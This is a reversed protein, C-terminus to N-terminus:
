TGEWFTPDDLRWITTSMQETAEVERNVSVDYTAVATLGRAPFAARRPDGFWATGGRRTIAAALRGVGRAMAPEYLADGALLVDFFVDSEALLDQQSIDVKLGNRTANVRTAATAYPDVDSCLVHAAGARAAALGVVGSGCGLDLVRHGKVLDPHDLIHRALALGGPWAFAWWPPELGTNELEAATANWLPDLRHALALSFEPLLPHVTPRTWGEIQRDRDSEPM